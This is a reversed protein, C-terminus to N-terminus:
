KTLSLGIAAGVAVPGLVKMVKQIKQLRANQRTLDSIQKNLADNIQQQNANKEMLISRELYLSGIMNGYDTRIRTNDNRLLVVHNRLETILTDQYHKIQADQVLRAYTDVPISLMQATCSACSLISSLLLAPILIKLMAFKKNWHESLKRMCGTESPPRSVIKNWETAYGSVTWCFTM